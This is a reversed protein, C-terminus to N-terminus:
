PSSTPQLDNTYIDKLAVQGPTLEHDRVLWAIWREFDEDRLLGRPTAVTSGTWYRVASADENRKRKKIISEMRAVVEARPTKRLWDFAKGVGDVFKRATNPNQALFRTSMVTSGATFTGFIQQDSFLMRIGGRELAKNRFITGLCAVEVQHERLSLEGNVSPL